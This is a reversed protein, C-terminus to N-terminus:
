EDHDDKYAQAMLSEAKGFTNHKEFTDIIISMIDLETHNLEDGDENYYTADMGIVDVEDTNDNWVLEVDVELYNDNEFYVTFSADTGISGVTPKTTEYKM